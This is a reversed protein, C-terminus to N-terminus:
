ATDDLATALDRRTILLFNKTLLPILQLRKPSRRCSLLPSIAGKQGEPAAWPPVNGSAPTLLPRCGAPANTPNDGFCFGWGIM